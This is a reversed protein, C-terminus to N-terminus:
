TGNDERTLLNQLDPLLNERLKGKSFRVEAFVKTQQEQRSTRGLAYRDLDAFTKAAM